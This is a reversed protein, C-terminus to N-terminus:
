HSSLLGGLSKQMTCQHLEPFVNCESHRSPAALSTTVKAPNRDTKATLVGRGVVGERQFRFSTRQGDVSFDLKLSLVAGKSSTERQIPYLPFPICPCKNQESCLPPLPLGM